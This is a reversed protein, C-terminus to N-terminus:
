QGLRGMRAKVAEVQRQQPPDADSWLRQFREYRARAAARDGAAEELEGLLRSVPAHYVFENPAGQVGTTLWRRADERRGEALLAAALLYRALEQGYPRATAYAPLSMLELPIEAPATELLRVVERPRGSQWAVAARLTRALGRVVGVGGSPPGARELIGAQRLAEDSEGLRASLLGLLYVRLHPRLATALDTREAPDSEPNWAEIRYRIERLDSATVELFPVTAALAAEAKAGSAGVPEAERFARLAAEWRGRGVELWAKMLLSGQRIAPRERWGLELTLLSDASAFADRYTMLHRAAIQMQRNQSRSTEELLAAYGNRDSQVFALYARYSWPVEGRYRPLMATASALDDERVALHWM